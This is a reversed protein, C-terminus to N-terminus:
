KALYCPLHAVIRPKIRFHLLGVSRAPSLCVVNLVCCFFSIVGYAQMQKTLSLRRRLNKIQAIIVDKEAPIQKYKAHLNRILTAIALFRNTYALMMLTIAPVLLAPTNISFEM